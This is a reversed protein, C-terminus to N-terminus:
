EKKAKADALQKEDLNMEIVEIRNASRKFGEAGVRKSEDVDGEVGHFDIGSNFNVKRKLKSYAEVKVKDIAACAKKLYEEFQASYELSLSHM